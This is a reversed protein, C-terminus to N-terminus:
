RCPGNFIAEDVGDPYFNRLSIAENDLANIELQRAQMYAFANPGDNHPRVRIEDFQHWFAAPQNRTHWSRKALAGIQKSLEREIKTTYERDEHPIPKNWAIYHQIVRGYDDFMLTSFREGNKRVSYVAYRGTKGGPAYNAVCHHMATGEEWYAYESDLLFATYHVRVNPLCAEASLPRIYHELHLPPALMGDLDVREPFQHKFRETSYNKKNIEKTYEDHKRQITKVSWNVDFPAGLHRAMNRTDYYTGCLNHIERAKTVSLKKPEQLHVDIQMLYEPCANVYAGRHGQTVLKLLGSSLKYTHPIAEAWDALLKNRSFSNKCISKWVGKGLQKKLEQPDKGFAMIIPTVHEIGDAIAQAIILKHKHFAKVKEADLEGHKGKRDICLRYIIRQNGNVWLQHMAKFWGRFFFSGLENSMFTFAKKHGDYSTKGFYPANPIINQILPVCAEKRKPFLFFESKSFAGATVTMNEHDVVIDIPYKKESM